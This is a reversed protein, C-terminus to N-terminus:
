EFRSQLESTHEESRRIILPHSATFGVEGTGGTGESNGPATPALLYPNSRAVRTQLADLDAESIGLRALIGDETGTCGAGGVRGYIPLADHLSLTDIE